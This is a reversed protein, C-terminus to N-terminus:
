ISGASPFTPTGSLKISFSAKLGDNLAVKPSLEFGAGEFDWETTAVDAFILQWNETSAVTLSEPFAPNDLLYLLNLHGQLAPDFFIEGSVSGGETRGTSQYPIGADTNDLTDAEFTESAMGPGDLSIVQAVAVFATAVKQNLVTGKCRHKSM